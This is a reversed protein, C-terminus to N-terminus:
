FDSATGSAQATIELGLSHTNGHEKVPLWLDAQLYFSSPSEKEKRLM